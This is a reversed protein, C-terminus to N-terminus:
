LASRLRAHEEHPAFIEAPSSKVRRAKVPGARRREASHRFHAGNLESVSLAESIIRASNDDSLSDEPASSDDLASGSAWGARRLFIASSTKRRRPGAKFYLRRLDYSM